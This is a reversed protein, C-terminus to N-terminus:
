GGRAVRGRGRAGGGRAAGAVRYGVPPLRQLARQRRQEEVLGRHIHLPVHCLQRVFVFVPRQSHPVPVRLAIRRLLVVLPPYAPFAPWAPASESSSLGRAVRHPVAARVTASTTLARVSWDPGFSSGARVILSSAATFLDAAAATAIATAVLHRALGRRLGEPFLHPVPQLIQPRLQDLLLIVVVVPVAPPAVPPASLPARWRACLIEAVHLVPLLCLHLEDYGRLRIHTKAAAAPNTSVRSM